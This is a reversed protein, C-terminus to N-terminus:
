LYNRGFVEMFKEHGYEDEFKEQFMKKLYMAKEGKSNLTVETHCCACLHIQMKYKISLQRRGSGEFVEHTQAYPTHCFFCSQEVTPVPNNKARKKKMKPKPFAPVYATM